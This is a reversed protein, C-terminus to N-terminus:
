RYAIRSKKPPRKKGKKGKFIPKPTFPTMNFTPDSKKIESYIKDTLDPTKGHDFDKKLATISKIGRNGDLDLILKGQDTRVMAKALDPSRDELKGIESNIRNHESQPAKNLYAKARQGKLNDILKLHGKKAGRAININDKFVPMDQIKTASGGMRRLGSQLANMGPKLFREMTRQSAHFSNVDLVALAHKIFYDM